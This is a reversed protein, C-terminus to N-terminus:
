NSYKYFTNCENRIRKLVVYENLIGNKTIQIFSKYQHQILLLMLSFLM